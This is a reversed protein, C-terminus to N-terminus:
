GAWSDFIGCIKSAARETKPRERSSRVAGRTLNTLSPLGPWRISTRYTFSKTV